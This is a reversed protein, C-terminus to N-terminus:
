RLREQLYEQHKRYAPVAFLARQWYARALDQNGSCQWADGMAALYESHLGLMQEQPQMVALAERCDGQKLFDKAYTLKALDAKFQFFFAESVDADAPLTRVPVPQRAAFSKKLDYGNYAGTLAPGRSIFLHSSVTNYIVSHTAILADLSRRNGLHLPKGDVGNRDRLM